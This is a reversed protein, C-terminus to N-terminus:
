GKGIPTNLLTCLDETSAAEAPSLIQIDGPGPGGYLCLDGVCMVCVEGYFGTYCCSARLAGAPAAFLGVAILLRLYNPFSRFNIKM